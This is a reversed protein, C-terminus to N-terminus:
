GDMRNSMERIALTMRRMNWIMSVAQYHGAGHLVSERCGAPKVAGALVGGLKAIQQQYNGSTGSATLDAASAM